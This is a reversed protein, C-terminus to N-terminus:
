VSANTKGDCDAPFHVIIYAETKRPRNIDDIEIEDPDSAMAPHPSIFHIDIEDYQGNSEEMKIDTHGKKGHHKKGKRPHQTKGNQKHPPAGGRCKSKWHGINSCKSCVSDCLRMSSLQCMWICPTQHLKWVPQKFHTEEITPREEPVTM